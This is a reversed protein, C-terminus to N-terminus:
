RSRKAVDIGNRAPALGLNAMRELTIAASKPDRELGVCRRGLKEAAVMTTGSGIFPDVVEGGPDTFLLICRRPLETPFAAPHHGEGQSSVSKMQWVGRYRWEESEPVREAVKKFPYRERDAFFGIYEWEHVPKYSNLWYPNTGVWTPDKAWIRTAVLGIRNVEAINALVGYSHFEKGVQPGVTLDALNIAMAACRPTWVRFFDELMQMWRAISEVTTRRGRDSDERAEEGSDRDIEYNQGTGYPPSTVVVAGRGRPSVWDAVAEDTCDGVYLLHEKGSLTGSPIRWSQGAEVGWRARLAELKDESARILPEALGDLHEAGEESLGPAPVGDEPEGPALDGIEVSAAAGASLQALLAKLSDDAVFPTVDSLLGSLAEGDAVALASLPDFTALALREEDPSLKVYSVPVTKQGKSIAIAVRLHGDIVHGTTANVVVPAVFGIEDLVARMAEQQFQPHIRWNAPNALLQDPAVNEAGTIRNKWDPM